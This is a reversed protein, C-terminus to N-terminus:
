SDVEMEKKSEGFSWVPAGPERRRLPVAEMEPLGSLYEELDQHTGREDGASSASSDGSPQEVVAADVLSLLADGTTIFAEMRSLAGRMSALEVRLGDRFSVLDRRSLPAGPHPLPPPLQAAPAAPVRKRRKITPKKMNVPRHANHLKYYLRTGCNFCEMATVESDGGDSGTPDSARGKAKDGSAAGAGAHYM